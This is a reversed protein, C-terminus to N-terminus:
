PKSKQKGTRPRQLSVSTRGTRLDKKQIVLRENEVQIVGMLTLHTNKQLSFGQLWKQGSDLQRGKGGHRRENQKLMSQPKM